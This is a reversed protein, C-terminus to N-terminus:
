SLLQSGSFQSKPFLPRKNLFITGFQLQLRFFPGVADGDKEQSSRPFSINASHISYDSDLCTETQWSPVYQQMQSASWWAKFPDEQTWFKQTLSHSLFFVEKLGWCESYCGPDWWARLLWVHLLPAEWPSYSLLPSFPLFCSVAGYFHREELGRYGTKTLLCARKAFLITVITRVEGLCFLVEQLPRGLFPTNGSVQIQCVGFYLLVRGCRPICKDHVVSYTILKRWVSYNEPTFALQYSLNGTATYVGKMNYKLIEFKNYVFSHLHFGNETTVNQVSTQPLQINQYITPFHLWGQHNAM